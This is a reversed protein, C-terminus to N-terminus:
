CCFYLLLFLFLFIFLFVCFFMCIYLDKFYMAGGRGNDIPVRLIYYQIFEFETLVAKVSLLLFLFCLLVYKLLFFFFHKCLM